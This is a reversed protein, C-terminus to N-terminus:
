TLPQDFTTCVLDPIIYAEKNWASPLPLSREEARPGVVALPGDVLHRHVGKRRNQVGGYLVARFICIFPAVRVAAGLQAILKFQSPFPALDSSRDQDM